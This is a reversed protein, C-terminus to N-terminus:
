FKQKLMLVSSPIIPCCIDLGDDVKIDSIKSIRSAIVPIDGNAQIINSFLLLQIITIGILIKKKSKDM